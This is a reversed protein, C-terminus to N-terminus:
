MAFTVLITKSFTADSLIIIGWLAICLTVLFATLISLAEDTSVKLRKEAQRLLKDGLPALAVALSLRPLKTLQSGVYVTALTNGFKRLSLHIAQIKGDVLAAANPGAGLKQWRWIIALTYWLFNLIGYSLVGARGADKLRYAQKSTLRRLRALIKNQRPFFTLLQDQTLPDDEDAFESKTDLEKAIAEIEQKKVLKKPPSTSGAESLAKSANLARSKRTLLSIRPIPLYKQLNSELHARNIRISLGRLFVVSDWSEEEEFATVMQQLDKSVDSDLESSNDLEGFLIQAVDKPLRHLAAFSLIKSFIRSAETFSDSQQDTFDYNRKSVAFPVAGWKYNSDIIDLVETIKIDKISDRVDSEVYAKTAKLLIIEDKYPIELLNIPLYSIDQEQEEYYDRPWLSNFLVPPLSRTSYLFSTRTSTSNLSTFHLRAGNQDCSTRGSLIQRPSILSQFAFSTGCFVSAALLLVPSKKM